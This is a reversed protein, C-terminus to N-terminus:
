WPAGDTATNHVTMIDSKIGLYSEENNMMVSLTQERKPNEPSKQYFSVMVDHTREQTLGLPPGNEQIFIERTYVGSDTFTALDIDPRYTKASERAISLYKEDSLYEVGNVKGSNWLGLFLDNSNYLMPSGAQPSSCGVALITFLILILNKM